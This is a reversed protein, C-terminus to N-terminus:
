SACADVGNIVQINRLVSDPTEGCHFDFARDQFACDIICTDPSSGQVTIAKGEFSIRLFGQGSYTGPAVLIRDGDNAVDIAQQITRYDSPVLLDSASALSCTFFVPIIVLLLRFRSRNLVPSQIGSIIIKKVHM